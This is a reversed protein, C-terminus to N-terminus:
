WCYHWHQRMKLKVTVMAESPLEGKRAGSLKSPNKERKLRENGVEAELVADGLKTSWWAESMQCDRRPCPRPLKQRLCGGPREFGPESEVVAVRASESVERVVVLANGPDYAVYGSKPESVMEM